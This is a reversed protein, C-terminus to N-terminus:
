REEKLREKSLPRSASTILRADVAVGCSVTFGRAALQSILEGNIRRLLDKGLRSRFRSFTSHDPSPEHFSLDLFRRFSMRDNIQTELEPDSKIGFWQGLLLCKFLLLPPYAANGEGKKGVPYGSLIIEEVRKWDVLRNIKELKELARNKEMIGQLTYEALSVNKDMKKFGM